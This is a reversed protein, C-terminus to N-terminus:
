GIVSNKRPEINFIYKYLEKQKHYCYWTKDSVDKIGVRIYLELTVLIVCSIGFWIWEGNKDLSTQFIADVSSTRFILFGMNTVTAFINMASMVIKWIGIGPSASINYKNYIIISLINIHISIYQKIGWPHPRRANLLNFYQLRGKFFNNIFVLLATLPFVASFIMIYGHSIVDTIYNYLIEPLVPRTLQFQIDNWVCEDIYRSHQNKSSSPLLDPKDNDDNNNSNDNTSSDIFFSRSTVRHLKVKKLKKNRKYCLVDMGYQYWFFSIINPCLLSLVFLTVLQFRVNYVREQDSQQQNDMFALWFISYFTSVFRFTVLKVGLHNESTSRLRHNEWNNLCIAIFMFIYNVILMLTSIAFGIALLIYFSYKDEADAYENFKLIFVYATTLAALLALIVIYSIVIKGWYVFVSKHIEIGNVYKGEFLPMPTEIKQYNVMGWKIRLYNEQRYWLENTTTSWAVSIVIGILSVFGDRTIDFKFITEIM